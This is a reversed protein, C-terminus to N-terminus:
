RAFAVNCKGSQRLCAFTTRLLRLGAFAQQEFRAGTFLGVCPFRHRMKTQRKRWGARATLPMVSKSSSKATALNDTCPTMHERKAACDKCVEAGSRGVISNGYRVRGGCDCVGEKLDSYRFRALVGHEHERRARRAESVASPSIPLQRTTVLRIECCGDPSGKRADAM